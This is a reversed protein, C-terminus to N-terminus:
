NLLLHRLLPLDENFSYLTRQRSVVEEGEARIKEIMNSVTGMLEDEKVPKLLYAEVGASVARQAYEFDSYGSLLMCKTKPSIDRIKEILELGNLGPMRIDSIVLHVNHTTLLDIAETASSATYVSSIHLEEWPYTHALSDLVYQEDDVILLEYM